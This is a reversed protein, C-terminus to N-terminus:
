HHILLSQGTFLYMGQEYVIDSPDQGSSLCFAFALAFLGCDNGNTQQQVDPIVVSIKKDNSLILSAIQQKARFSVDCAPLSDYVKVENTNCGLSTVTIWHSKRVNLIQIFEVGAPHVDFTLSGWHFLARCLFFDVGNILQISINFLVFSVKNKTTQKYYM